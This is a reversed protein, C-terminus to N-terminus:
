VFAMYIRWVILAVIGLIMLLRAIRQAPTDVLQRLSTKPGDATYARSELAMAREEVDVLAGVILPGVLSPLARLRNFFGKTELGRSSQTEQIATARASMDPVLQLSVLVLYGVSSPVGRETLAFALDAPHTTLILLLVTTALALLRVAIFFSFVLGDLWLTVPGIPLPQTKTPPFLIGQILLLSGVIPLLIFLVTRYLPLTVGGILSLILVVGCIALPALSWPLLYTAALLLGAGAIKTLPHLAHLLSTRAVYVSQM